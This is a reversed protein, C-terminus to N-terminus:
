MPLTAKTKLGHKAIVAAYDAERAKRHKANGSCDPWKYYKPTMFDDGYYRKLIGKPHAATPVMRGEFPRKTIPYMEGPLYRWKPWSNRVIKFGIKASGELVFVDWTPNPVDTRDFRLARYARMTVAPSFKVLSPLHTTTVTLRTEVGHTKVYNVMTFFRKRNDKGPLLEVDGDYDFPIFKGSRCCGLLSGGCMTYEVNHEEFLHMLKDLMSLLVIRFEEPYIKMQTLLSLIGEISGCSM